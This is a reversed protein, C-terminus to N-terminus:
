IVIRPAAATVKRETVFALVAAFPFFVEMMTAGGAHLSVPVLMRLGQFGGVGHRSLAGTMERGGHLVITCKIAPEQDPIPSEAEDLAQLLLEKVYDSQYM